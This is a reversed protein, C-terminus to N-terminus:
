SRASRSYRISLKSLLVLRVNVGGIGDQRYQHSGGPTDVRPVNDDDSLAVVDVEVLSLSSRETLRAVAEVLKNSERQDEGSISNSKTVTLSFAASGGASVSLGSAMLEGAESESSAM